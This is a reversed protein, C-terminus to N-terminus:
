VDTFTFNGMLKAFFRSRHRLMNVLSKPIPIVWTKKGRLHQYLETTSWNVSYPHIIEITQQEIAKQIISTLDTLQLLSRQNNIKFFIPSWKALTALAKVNGKPDPGLVLPLRLICTSISETTQLAKEACVKSKAYANQPNL